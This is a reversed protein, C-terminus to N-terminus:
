QQRYKFRSLSLASGQSGTSCSSGGSPRSAGGLGETRVGASRRGTEADGRGRSSRKITHRARKHKASAQREEVGERTSMERAIDSTRSSATSSATSSAVGCVSLGAWCCWEVVASAALDPQGAAQAPRSVASFRSARRPSVLRTFHLSLKCTAREACTAPRTRAGRKGEAGRRIGLSTVQVPNGVRRATQHPPAPGTVSPFRDM